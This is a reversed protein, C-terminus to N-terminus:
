HKRESRKTTTFLVDKTSVSPNKDSSNPEQLNESVANATRLIIDKHAAKMHRILTSECAYKRNCHGCTLHCNPTHARRVHRNLDGTQFFKKECMSCKFAKDKNHFRMHVVLDSRRIYGKGCKECRHPEQKAHILLHRKLDCRQLFERGCDSCKFVNQSETELKHIKRHRTFNGIRTFTANCLDCKFGKKHLKEHNVLDHKIKFTDQCEMCKFVDCNDTPSTDPLGPESTQLQTSGCETLQNVAALITPAIKGDGTPEAISIVAAQPQGPEKSHGTIVIVSPILPSKEPIPNSLGMSVLEHVLSTNSDQEADVFKFQLTNTGFVLETQTEKVEMNRSRTEPVTPNFVLPNVDVSSFLGLQVLQSVDVPDPSVYKVAALYGENTVVYLSKNVNDNQFALVPLTGSSQNTLSNGLVLPTQHIIPEVTQLELSSPGGSSSFSTFSFGESSKENSHVQKDECALILTDARCLVLGSGASSSDKSVNLIVTDSRSLDSEHNRIVSVAKFQTEIDADSNRGEAIAELSNVPLSCCQVQDISDQEATSTNGRDKVLSTLLCIQQHPSKAHQFRKVLHMLSEPIRNSGLVAKESTTYSDTIASIIQESVAKSSASTEESDSKYLSFSCAHEQDLQFLGTSPISELSVSRDSINTLLSFPKNTNQLLGKGKRMTKEADNDNSIFLSSIPLSDSVNVSESSLIVTDSSALQARDSESDSVKGSTVCTENRVKFTKHTHLGQFLDSASSENLPSPSHSQSQSLQNTVSVKLPLNNGCKGHLVHDASLSTQAPEQKNMINNVHTRLSAGSINGIVINQCGLQELSIVSDAPQTIIPAPILYTTDSRNTEAM